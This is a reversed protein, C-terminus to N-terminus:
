NILFVNEKYTGDKGPGAYIRCTFSTERQTEKYTPFARDAIITFMREFDQTCGLFYSKGDQSSRCSMVYATFEVKQLSLM